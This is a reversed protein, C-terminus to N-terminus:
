LAGSSIKSIKLSGHSRSRIGIDDILDFVTDDDCNGLRLELSGAGDAKLRELQRALDYFCLTTM